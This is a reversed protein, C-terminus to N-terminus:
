YLVTCCLVSDYMTLLIFLFYSMGFLQLCSSYIGSYDTKTRVSRRKREREREKERVKERVMERGRKGGRGNGGERGRGRGRVGERGTGGGKRGKREHVRCECYSHALLHEYM